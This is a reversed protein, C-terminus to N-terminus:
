GAAPRARLWEFHAPDPVLWRGGWTFGWREMVEVLRPDQASALGTPNGAVNLDVAAGWAHRSVGGGGRTLRPNWCGAYAAPDVLRALGRQRLEGLAGALSPLLARNCRVRGLIPVRATALHAAQWAPDQAFADGRARRWAFEGFREKVLAQPLVADGARFFPTEGPGRLRVPLRPPLARRLGAAVEARGGRYALLLYRDTTIGVRRAGATTVAVEAAGVLVDDVVGAVTLWRGRGGGQALRLRGGPGIRRLRASTSGLLAEGPGLRVFADRASAPLLDPYTAPDFGIAELPVSAGGRPRDVARGDADVSGVLGLLGGRVVTVAGVGRVRGAAGALRGPLRGPTWVLLVRDAAAVPRGGASTGPASARSVVPSPLSGPPEPAGQLALAAGIGVALGVVAAGAPRLWRGAADLLPTGAPRSGPGAPGIGSGGGAQGAGTGGAGTGGAGTGGAGTGGAGTGGAGVGGARVRDAGLRGVGVRRVGSGWRGTGPGGTPSRLGVLFDPRWTTWLGRREKSPVRTRRGRTM